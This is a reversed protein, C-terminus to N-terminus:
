GTDTKEEPLPAPHAIDAATAPQDTDRRDWRQRDETPEVYLIRAAVAVVALLPTAVFLAMIGFGIALMLQWILLAAPPINVARREVLPVTLANQVQQLLFYFIAVYLALAPSVTFASLMAPIAAITPGFNPVFEMLAAFSALALAGPVGLFTLGFYTVVGIFLMTLAKGIVWARLLRGSEDYVRAWRERQEPPLIRLFTERYVAPEAAMFVALTVIAFSGLLTGILNFAVPVFRGMFEAAQQSINRTLEGQPDSARTRSRFWEAASNVANPLEVALQTGQDVLQPILVVLLGILGGVFLVLVIGFALRWPLWRSLWKAPAHLVIAILVALLAVFLAGHVLWFFRYFFLFLFALGLIRAVDSTRWVIRRVNSETM